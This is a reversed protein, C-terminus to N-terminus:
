PDHKKSAGIHFELYFSIQKCTTSFCRINLRFEESFIGVAERVGDPSKHPCPTNLHTAADARFATLISPGQEQKSTSSAQVDTAESASAHTKDSLLKFQCSEPFFNASTLKIHIKIM